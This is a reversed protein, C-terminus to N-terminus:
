LARGRKNDLMHGFNGDAQPYDAHYCDTQQPVIPCCWIFHIRNASSLCRSIPSRRLLTCNQDVIYDAICVLVGALIGCTELKRNTNPRVINLFRDLLRVPVILTRLGQSFEIFLHLFFSILHTSNTDNSAVIDQLRLKDQFTGHVDEEIQIKPPLKPANSQAVPKRPLAPPPGTPTPVFSQQRTVTPASVDPRDM